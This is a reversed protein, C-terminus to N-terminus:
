TVNWKKGSNSGTLLFLFSSVFTAAAGSSGFTLEQDTGAVFDCLKDVEPTTPNKIECGVKGKVAYEGELVCGTIELTVFTTGTTPSFTLLRSTGNALLSISLPVTDIPETVKCGAPESVSCKTFVVGTSSGTNTPIAKGKGEALTCLIDIKVKSVETTLTSTTGETKGLVAEESTLPKEEVQWETASASASAVAGLVLVALFGLLVLKTRAM